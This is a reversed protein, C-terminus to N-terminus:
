TYMLVNEFLKNQPIKLVIRAKTMVPAITKATVNGPPIM